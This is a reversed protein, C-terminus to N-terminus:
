KCFAPGEATTSGTFRFDSASITQWRTKDNVRDTRNPSSAFAVLRLDQCITIPARQLEHQFISDLRNSKRRDTAACIATFVVRFKRAVSSWISLTIKTRQPSSM